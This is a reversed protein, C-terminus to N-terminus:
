GAMNLLEISNNVNFKEFMKSKINRVTNHSINLHWAIEKTSLGQKILTVLQQERKSLSFRESAPKFEKIKELTEGQKFLEVKVGTFAKESTIDRLLAFYLNGSGGLNLTAKEDYLYLYQGDAKRFRYHLITRYVVHEDPMVSELMDHIFGFCEYLDKQDAPHIHNFFKDIRSNRVMTEADYGFVHECNKSIYTIEPHMMPCTMIVWHPFFQYMNDFLELAEERKETGARKVYKHIYNSVRDATRLLVAEKIMTHTKITQNISDTFNGIATFTKLGWFRHGTTM